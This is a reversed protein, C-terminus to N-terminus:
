IKRCSIQRKSTIIQLHRKPNNNETSVWCGATKSAFQRAREPLNVFKGTSPNQMGVLMIGSYKYGQPAINFYKNKDALLQAKHLKPDLYVKGNANKYAYQYEININNNSKISVTNALSIGSAATVLIALTSNYIKSM